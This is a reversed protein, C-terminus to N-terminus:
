ILLKKYLELYATAANDWTFQAARAILRKKMSEDFSGLGRLIIEKMHSPEFNEFYFADAGGVEPVSTHTSLFLPKGKAMAEVIPIGFGELLSPFIFGQCNELYWAKTHDDVTGVFSVNPLNMSVLNQAYQSTTSGAIIFDFDSMLKASEVITHFNKKELVTGITFFFPKKPLTNPPKLSATPPVGNKIVSIDCLVKFNNLVEKKTFESICVVHSANTILKQLKTQILLTEQPKEILDNLDHITLIYQNSSPPLYRPDQHTLHWLDAKPTIFKFLTKKETIPHSILSACNKPVIASIRLDNNNKEIAKSLHLCFQGLGSYPDRIKELEIIVNPRM